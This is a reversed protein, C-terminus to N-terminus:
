VGARVALGHIVRLLTTVDERALREIERRGKPLASTHKGWRIAIAKVAAAVRHARENEAVQAPTPEPAEEPAPETATSVVQLPPVPKPAMGFYKKWNKFM